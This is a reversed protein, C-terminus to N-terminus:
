LSIFGDLRMLYTVENKREPKEAIQFFFVPLIKSVVAAVHFQLTCSTLISYDNINLTNMPKGFKLITLCSKLLSNTYESQTDGIESM